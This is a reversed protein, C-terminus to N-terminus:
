LTRYRGHMWNSVTAQTAQYGKELLKQQIAGSSLEPNDKAYDLLWKKVHNPVKVKYHAEGSHHLRIAALHEVEKLHYPNVCAKNGCTHTIVFGPKPQRGHHIAWAVRHAAFTHDGIRFRGYGGRDITSTWLWCESKDGKIFHREFRQLTKDHLKLKSM